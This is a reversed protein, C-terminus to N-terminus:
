EDHDPARAYLEVDGVSNELSILTDGHCGGTKIWYDTKHTRPLDVDPIQDLNSALTEHDNITFECKGCPYGLLPHRIEKCEGAALIACKLISRRSGLSDTNDLKSLDIKKGLTKLEFEAM